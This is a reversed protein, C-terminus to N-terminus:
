LSPLINRFLSRRLFFLFFPVACVSSKPRSIDLSLVLVSHQMNLGPWFFCKLWNCSMNRVPTLPAHDTPVQKASTNVMGIGGGGERGGVERVFM